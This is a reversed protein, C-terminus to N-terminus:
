DKQNTSDDTGGYYVVNPKQAELISKFLFDGVAAWEEGWARRAQEDTDTAPAWLEIRCRWSRGNHMVVIVDLKIPEM